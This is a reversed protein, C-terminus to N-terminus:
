EKLFNRNYIEKIGYFILNEEYLDVGKIKNKLYKVLGGTIIVGAQPSLIKRYESIMYNLSGIYSYYLGARMCETTNRGIISRPIKFKIRKLKATNEALSKLSIEIGPFIVGGIYERERNIIDLTTATGSDIVVLPPQLYKLAGVANVIRDAGVEEPKDVKIKLGTDTNIDIYYPRIKLKSYCLDALSKELRPVVSSFMIHSVSYKDVFKSIRQMLEPTIKKPTPLKRTKFITENKFLALSFTTNGIDGALLM